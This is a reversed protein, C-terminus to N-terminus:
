PFFRIFFALFVFVAALSNRLMRKPDWCRCSEHSPVRTEAQIILPNRFMSILAAQIDQTPAIAMLVTGLEAPLEARVRDFQDPKSTAIVIAGGLDQWPIINERMCLGMDILSSLRPLPPKAQLDALDAGFQMSLAGYLDAESVMGHNILINGLRTEERNRLALATLLDDQSLAGSKVLIEGIPM